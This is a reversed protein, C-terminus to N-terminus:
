LHPYPNTAFFFFLCLHVEEPQFAEECVVMIRISHSNFATQVIRIDAMADFPLVVRVDDGANKANLVGASIAEVWENMQTVTDARLIYVKSTTKLKISQKAPNPEISVVNKLYITSRPFYL